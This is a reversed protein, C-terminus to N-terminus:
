SSMQLFPRPRYVHIMREKDTKIEEWGKFQFVLSVVRANPKTLERELKEQLSNNTEQLLFTVVVDADKLDVNFFNRQIIRLKGKLGFQRIKLRSYLVRFPDIEIGTARAGFDRAAVIVLRGDGSGLDYVLEGPQLEAMALVEHVLKSSMPVWPAGLFQPLMISSVAVIASILTLTLVILLLSFGTTYNLFILITVVGLGMVLYFLIM